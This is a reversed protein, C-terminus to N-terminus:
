RQSGVQLEDRKWLEWNKLQEALSDTRLASGEASLHWVTDTFHERVSYVGLRADRLVPIWESVQHLFSRCSESYDKVRDEPTYGWPLSYAVRVGMADCQSKISQLYRIADASLKARHGPPGTFEKRVPTQQWGSPTAESIRYRYLPQRSLVKGLLTITHYAGPRLALLASFNSLGEVGLSTDVVWRLRDKAFAHQIANLTPELPDTLLAPELAIILTDGRRVTELAEQALVKAGLGAGLGYNVLPIGHKEQMREGNISFACSSGGFIVTKPKGETSLHEAWRHKLDSFRHFFVIEPNLRVTYFVCLLWTGLATLILLLALRPVTRDSHSTSSDM